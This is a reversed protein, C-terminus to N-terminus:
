RPVLNGSGLLRNMKSCTRDGDSEILIHSFDTKRDGNTGRLFKGSERGAVGSELEIVAERHSLESDSPRLTALWSGNSGANWM